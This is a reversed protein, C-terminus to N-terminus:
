GGLGAMDQHWQAALEDWSWAGNFRGASLMLDQRGDATLLPAAFIEGAMNRVAFDDARVLFRVPGGHALVADSMAIWMLLMEASLYEEYFKGTAEGIMDAVAGGMLRLRYRRRGDPDFVREHFNIVKLYPKLLRATFASRPPIGAGAQARWIACVAGTEPMLFREHGDALLPWNHRQALANLEGLSRVEPFVEPM